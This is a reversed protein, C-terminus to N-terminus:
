IQVHCSECIGTGFKASTDLPKSCVPCHTPENDNTDHFFWHKTPIRQSLAAAIKRGDRNIQGDPDLLRAKAYEEYEGSDLWLRYLASAASYWRAISETEESTLQIREPAVEKRCDNCHIPNDTLLDVLVLGSVTPCQCAEIETWPRLKDYADM